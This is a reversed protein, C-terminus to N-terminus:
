RGFRAAQGPELSSKWNHNASYMSEPQHVLKSILWGALWPSALLKESPLCGLGLSFESVVPQLLLEALVLTLCLIM